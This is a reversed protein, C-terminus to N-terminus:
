RILEVNNKVNIVPCPCRDTMKQHMKTKDFTYGSPSFPNIAVFLVDVHHRSVVHLGIQKLYRFMHADCLINAADDLVLTKDKFISRHALIRTVIQNTLAGDLQIFEFAEEILQELANPDLSLPHNLGKIITGQADKVAVHTHHPLSELSIDKLMLQDVVTVTDEIVSELDRHYSAGSVLIVGDVLCRKAFSKRFLAGDIIVKSAGNQLFKHKIQQLGKTSSPGALLIQGPHTVVGLVIPGLPTNIATEEIINVAATSETLAHKATAIFMNEYVTIRPKQKFSLTDQEEGDLGISTIAIPQNVYGKLLTNMVTTKGANKSMGIIAITTAKECQDNIWM